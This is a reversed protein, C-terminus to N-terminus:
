RGGARLERSVALVTLPLPEPQRVVVRAGKNWSHAMRLDILETALAPAGYGDSASRGRAATFPGGPEGVEVGRSDAVEIDTRVVTKQESRLEGSIDLTELESVYGLGVHVLLAPEQLTIQGSSVTFPGASAGDALAHVEEGELHDLGTVVHRRIEFDGTQVSLTVNLESRLVGHVRNATFFETIEVVTEKATGPHLTVVSAVDTSLFFAGLSPDQIECPDGPNAPDPEGTQANIEILATTTNVGSQTIASDLFISSEVDEIRRDTLREIYRKTTGDIERKVAIYLIDDRGEKVVAISEVEGGFDHQTWGPLQGIRYTVSLVVGDDRLLWLLTDPGEQYAMQIIQHGELLHSGHESLDDRVYGNVNRDFRMQHLSEGDVGCFLVTHGVPIPKVDSSCGGITHNLAQISTSSLGGDGSVVWVGATTFALLDRISILAVVRERFQSALDISIARDPNPFGPQSLDFNFFNGTQSFELRTDRNIPATPNYDGGFVLRQQFFAADQPHQQNAGGPTRDEPPPRAFNPGDGRDTFTWNGSTETDSRGVHGFIGNEGRYVHMAVIDESPQDAATVTAPDNAHLPRTKPSAASKHSEFGDPDEFTVIWEWDREPFEDSPINSTSSVTPIAPTVDFLKIDYFALKWSDTAERTLVLGQDFSVFSHLLMLDGQQTTHIRQLTEAVPSPYVSGATTFEIPSGGSEQLAGEEWFRITDATLEVVVGSTFEGPSGAFSVLRVGGTAEKAEGLFQTGPRNEAPGTARCLMNEARRLGAQFLGSDSRGYLKPSIEGGAFSMQRHIPM